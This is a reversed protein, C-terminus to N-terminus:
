RDGLVLDAIRRLDDTLHQEPITASDGCLDFDYVFHDPQPPAGGHSLSLARLDIREVLSAVEQARADDAGLDLEGATHLGAFGGTRRVAVRRDAPGSGSASAGGGTSTAGGAGGAAGGTAGGGTSTTGSGSSLVGVTEWASRVEDAHDGAAAVTAAAFGAFDVDPTLGGGTLTAYWIRGAGEWSRGGIRTAALQFARNPIGSNIHVGGNDDTTDVYGSM